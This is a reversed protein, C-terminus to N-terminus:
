DETKKLSCVSKVIIMEEKIEGSAEEKFYNCLENPPQGSQVNIKEGTATASIILNIVSMSRVAM